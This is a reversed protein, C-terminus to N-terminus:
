RADDEGGGCWDLIAGKAQARAEAELYTLKEMQMLVRQGAMRLERAKLLV